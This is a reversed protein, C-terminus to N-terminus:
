RPVRRRLRPDSEIRRRLLWGVTFVSVGVGIVAPPSSVILKALVAGAAAIVLVIAVRSFASSSPFSLLRSLRSPQGPSQADRPVERTLRKLRQWSLFVDDTTTSLTDGPTEATDNGAPITTEWLTENHGTLVNTGRIVDDIAADAEDLANKLRTQLKRRMEISPPENYLETVIADVEELRTTARDITTTLAPDTIETHTEVTEIKARLDRLAQVLSSLATKYSKKSVSVTRKNQYSREPTSPQFWEKGRADTSGLLYLVYLAAGWLLSITVAGFVVGAVFIGIVTGLQAMLRQILQPGYAVLSSALVALLFETLYRLVVAM